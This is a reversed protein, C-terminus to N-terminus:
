IASRGSFREHARQIESIETQTEVIRRGSRRHCCFRRLQSGDGLRLGGLSSGMRFRGAFRTAAEASKNESYPFFDNNTKPRQNNALCFWGRIQTGRGRRETKQLSLAPFHSTPQFGCTGGNLWRGIVLSWRCEQERSRTLARTAGYNM